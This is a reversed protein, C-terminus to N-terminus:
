KVETNLTKGKAVYSYPIVRIIGHSEVLFNVEIKEEISLSTDQNLVIKSEFSEIVYTSSQGNVNKATALFVMAVLVVLIRKMVYRVLIKVGVEGVRKAM